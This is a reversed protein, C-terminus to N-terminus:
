EIRLLEWVYEQVVVRSEAGRAIWDGSLRALGIEWEVERSYGLWQYIQPPRDLDPAPTDLAISPPPLPPFKALFDVKRLRNQVSSLTFTAIILNYMFEKERDIILNDIIAYAPKM